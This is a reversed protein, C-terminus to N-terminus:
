RKKERKKECDICLTAEPFVALRDTDILNGCNECTGYSGLNVRTLAKRLQIIRRDLEQKMAGVRAHGFQEAAAADTAAMSEARGSSFPDDRDIDTRRKELLSLQNTLFNGIPRLLNAPIKLTSSVM